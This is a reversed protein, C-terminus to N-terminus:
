NQQSSSSSAICSGGMNFRRRLNSSLFNMNMKRKPYHGLTIPRNSSGKAKKRRKGSEEIALLEDFPLSSHLIKVKSGRSSTTRARKAMHTQGIATNSSIPSERKKNSSVPPLEICRHLPCLHWRSGCSCKWHKIVYYKKCLQCRQKKDLDNAQFNNNSSSGVKMCKPCEYSSTSPSSCPADTAKSAEEWGKKGIYENTLIHISSDWCIKGNMQPKYPM